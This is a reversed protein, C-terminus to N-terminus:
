LVFTLNDKSYEGDQVCWFVGTQILGSQCTDGDIGVWGAGCYETSSSGGSPVKPQPITFTGTVETVGTTVIVAGAWNSSAEDAYRESTLNRNYGTHRIPKGLAEALRSLPSALAANVVLLISAASTLFKM